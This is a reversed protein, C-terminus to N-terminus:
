CCCCCSCCCVVVIVVVVKWMVVNGGGGGGNTAPVSVLVVFLDTSSPFAGVRGGGGFLAVAVIVLVSAEVAVSAVAEMCCGDYWVAVEVVSGGVWCNSSGGFCDEGGDNV